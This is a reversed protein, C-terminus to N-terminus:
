TFGPYGGPEWQHALVMFQQHNIAHRFLLSNIHLWTGGTRQTAVGCRGRSPSEQVMSELSAAQAGMRFNAETHSMKIFDLALKGPLTQIECSLLFIEEAEVATLGSTVVSLGVQAGVLQGTSSPPADTPVSVEAGLGQSAPASGKSPDMSPISVSGQVPCSPAAPPFLFSPPPPRDPSGPHRREHSRGERLETSKLTPISLLFRLRLPEAVNSGM